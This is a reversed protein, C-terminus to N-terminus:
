EMLDASNKGEAKEQEIGKLIEDFIGTSELQKKLIDIGENIGKEKKGESNDEEEHKLIDEELKQEYLEEAKEPNQKQMKDFLM